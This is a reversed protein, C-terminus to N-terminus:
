ARVDWLALGIPIAFSSSMRDLEEPAISLSSVVVNELPNALVIETKLARRLEDILGPLRAESGTLYIKSLSRGEKQTLYYDASQRIERIFVPSKKKMIKAAKSEEESIVKEPPKEEEIIPTEPPPKIEEGEKAEKPKEEIPAEEVKEIREREPILGVRIKLEQAHEFTVGLDDIIAKTFDNGGLLHVRLFSPSGRELVILSTIDAGIDLLCTTEKTSGEEAPPLLKEAKSLILNPFARTLALLKSDIARPQLNARKLVSIFKQVMDKQAVVLLAKIMKENQENVFEELVAWDMIAEEIPIPIYDQAQFKFMSELERVDMYPLDIIRGIAKQNALGIIVENKTIGAKRRADKLCYSVSEVDIIEGNEVAGFPLGTIGIKRLAPPRRRIDMQVIRIADGSIDIGIGVGSSGFIAM